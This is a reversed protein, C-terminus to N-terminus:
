SKVIANDVFNIYNVIEDIISRNLTNEYGVQNLVKLMPYKAAILNFCNEINLKFKKQQRM